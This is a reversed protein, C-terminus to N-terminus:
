LQVPKRGKAVTEGLVERLAALVGKSVERELISAAEPQIRFRDEMFIDLYQGIDALTV